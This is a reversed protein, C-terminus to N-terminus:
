EYIEMFKQFEKSGLSDIETANFHLNGYAIDYPDNAAPQAVWSGVTLTTATNSLIQTRKIPNYSTQNIWYGVWQNTTWNQSNDTLTTSTSSSVTSTLRIKLPYTEVFVRQTDSFSNIANEQAQRIKVRQSYNSGLNYDTKTCIYGSIPYNAYLNNIQSIYLNEYANAYTSNNADNEGQNYMVYLKYPIGLSDLENLANTLTTKANNFVTAGVKWNVYMSTSGVAYKVVYVKKGTAARVKWAFSFEAAFKGAESPYENHNKDMPLYQSGTWFLINSDLTLYQSQLNVDSVFGAQNSQGYRFFVLATDEGTRLQNGNYEQPSYNNVMEDEAKNCCAFLVISIFILITNKM